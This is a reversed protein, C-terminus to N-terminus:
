SLSSRMDVLRLQVKRQGNFNNFEVAYVIDMKQDLEVNQWKDAAGFAVAWFNDFKFKIHQHNLGMTLKDRVTVGWSVFLAEKNDQGFPAFGALAEVLTEDIEALSVAADIKLVPCLAEDSLEEEALRRAAEVFVPLSDKDKVTFGCAAKHGGFRELLHGTRELVSLINYGEISRGSGKIKGESLTIVMTPKGYRECLRGAVLGIVGEHWSDLSQDALQPSVVILIKDASLNKDIYDISYELLRQTEEQRTANQKNLREALIIAEAKDTAVLLQYALDAHELRGAVNLRPALQWGIHGANIEGSLQAAAALAQLGIRRGRNIERLGRRVLYRNEGLLSVCDAVTGVAVLDTVRNKLNEKVEASLKSEDILAGALKFAVGVGALYKFPYTEDPLMPNIILCSPWDASQEPAAHHDTVIVSLGLSKAFEVEAYSRIGNDVTVVLSCGARSIEQLLHKNLGYGEILRNPIWVRVNAKLTKLTESLVASATIGDADYDGCIAILEGAKIKEVLLGVAERMHKFLWPSHSDTENDSAFFAVADAAKLGRNYLLQAILNNLQGYEALREPAM